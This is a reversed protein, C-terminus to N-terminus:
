GQKLGSKLVSNPKGAFRGSPSECSFAHKFNQLGTELLSSLSRDQNKEGHFKLCPPYLDKKSKIELRRRQMYFQGSILMKDLRLNLFDM